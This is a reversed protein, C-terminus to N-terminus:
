KQNEQPAKTNFDQQAAAVIKNAADAMVDHAASSMAEALAAGTDAKLPVSKEYAESWLIAGDGLRILTFRAAFVARSGNADTVEDFSTIDGDVAYQSASYFRMPGASKFAQSETLARLMMEGVLQTPQEVWRDYERYTIEGSAGRRLMRQEYRPLARLDLVAISADIANASPAAIVPSGDLQYRQVPTYPNQSICGAFSCVVALLIITRRMM